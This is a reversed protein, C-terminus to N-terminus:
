LIVALIVGAVVVVGVLWWFSGRAPFQAVAADDSTSSREELVIRTLNMGTEIQPPVEAVMAPEVEPAVAEAPDNVTASLPTAVLFLAFISLPPKRM